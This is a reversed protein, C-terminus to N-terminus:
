RPLLQALTYGSRSMATRATRQRPPAIAKSTEIVGDADFRMALTSTGDVHQWIEVDCDESGETTTTCNVKLQFHDDYTGAANQADSDKLTITPTATPHLGIGTLLQWVMKTEATDYDDPRIFYPSVEADTDEILQYFYGTGSSIDGVYALYGAALSDADIELSDLDDATGGTLSNFVYFGSISGTADAGDAFGAPVNALQSWDVTASESNPVGGNIEEALEDTTAISIGLKSELAAEDDLANVAADIEAGSHEGQYAWAMAVFWALVVLISVIFLRTKM